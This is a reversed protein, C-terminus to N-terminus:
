NCGQATNYFSNTKIVPQKIKKFVSHFRKNKRIRNLGFFIAPILGCCITAISFFNRDQKGASFKLSVFRQSAEYRVFGQSGKSFQDSVSIIKYSMVGRQDVARM